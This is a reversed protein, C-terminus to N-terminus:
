PADYAIGGDTGIFLDVNESSLIQNPLSMGPIVLDSRLFQRIEAVGSTMTVRGIFIYSSLANATTIGAPNGTTHTTSVIVNVALSFSNFAWTVFQGSIGATKDYAGPFTWALELWVGYTGTGLLTLFGEIDGDPHGSLAGTGITVVANEMGIYPKSDTDSYVQMINVQGYEVTLENDAVRMKFPHSTDTTAGRPNRIEITKQFEPVDPGYRPVPARPVPARPVPPAEQRPNVSGQDRAPSEARFVGRLSNPQQM